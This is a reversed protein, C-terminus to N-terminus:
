HDEPLTDPFLMEAYIGPNSDPIEIAGVTRRYFEAPGVGGIIAYGYGADRMATLSVRLLAEGIGTRAHGRRRGDARLFRASHCRPLCLRRDPGRVGRHAHVDADIQLGGGGRGGLRLWIDARDLSCCAENPHWQATFASVTLLRHDRKHRCHM